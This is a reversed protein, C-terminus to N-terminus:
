QNENNILTFPIKNQIEDAKRRVQMFEIASIPQYNEVCNRYKQQTKNPSMVHSITVEQAFLVIRTYFGKSKHIAFYIESDEIKFYEFENM